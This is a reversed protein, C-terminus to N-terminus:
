IAAGDVRSPGGFPNLNRYGSADGWGVARVVIDRKYLRGPTATTWKFQVAKGKGPGLVLYDRKYGGGSAPISYTEVRDDYLVQLALTSTTRHAIVMDRMHGFGPWDASTFQTEWQTALEPEPEFVFRYDLLMWPTDDGVIRVLETIFPDWGEAAIPYAIQMEGPHNIVFSIADVGGDKQVTITKDLGFTNARIIVGQVWKAGVYGLNEWDTARQAATDAKPIFAPEWWYLSPRATDEDTVRGSILLGLNRALLGDGDALDLVYAARGSAGTGITVPAPTTAGDQAIAQVTIGHVAGAPDVDLSLDGYQKQIRPQQSDAWRTHLDWEVPEGADDLAALDYQYASGDVGAAIHNYVGAGAEELRTTIGTKDSQDFMWAKNRTNYILTCDAAPPAAVSVTATDSDDSGCDNEVRVWYSASTILVPTTFSASTAGPIPTSTDGSVGQYWQYSIPETCSPDVEVTLTASQGASISTNTPQLSILAPVCVELAQSLVFVPCSNSIENPQSGNASVYSNGTVYVAATESAVSGDGINVVQFYSPDQAGLLNLGWVGFQTDSIYCARDLRSVNGQASAYSQLVSGDVPSLKLIKTAPAITDKVVIFISGDSITWGPRSTIFWQFVGGFSVTWTTLLTNSTLDWVDIQGSGIAITRGVYFRTGDPSAAGNRLTQGISLTNVIAGTTRELVYIKQATTYVYFYQNQDSYIGGVTEGGFTQSAIRTFDSDLIAIGLDATGDQTCVLGNPMTATFEGAPFEAYNLFTGAPSFIAAPFGDADDSIVFSGAPATTKVGEAVEFAVVAPSTAQVGYALQFWYTTGSTVPLRFYLKTTPSASPPENMLPLCYDNGESSALLTLADETGIWVSTAPTNDLSSSSIDVGGFVLLFHVGSPCTYKYWVANYGSTCGTIPSQPADDVNLAMSFPLLDSIDVATQPTINPPIAM